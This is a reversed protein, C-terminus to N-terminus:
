RVMTVSMPYRYLTGETAKVGGIIGFVIPVLAIVFPVFFLVGCSIIALVVGGLMALAWTIQFNLAAVAHARVTQSQGGKALLAILPAVWGLLGGGVIVGAPGGFHALLAWTKEDSNAYGPSPHGGYAGGPPYGGPPFGGPPPPYGGAGSTPPPYGAGSTPPPYGAGAPPPPYGGAPPPVYGPSAAGGPASYTPPLPTTPESGSDPTADGPPRPPETM